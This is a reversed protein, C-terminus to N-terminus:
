ARAVVAVAVMAAGSQKLMRAAESCTAGTTLVDDILLIRAGSVVQPRRVRFAGRVNQFRFTPSGTQPKTNRHRILVRKRAPIGLSKALCEALTEPNNKGRSLRRRWYMPVPIILEARIASLHEGRREWLLGGLALSLPDHLPYKM